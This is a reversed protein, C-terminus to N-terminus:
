MLGKSMQTEFLTPQYKNELMEPCGIPGMKLDLLGLPITATEDQVARGKLIPGIPQGSINTFL